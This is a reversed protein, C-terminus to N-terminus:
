PHFGYGRKRQGAMKVAGKGSKFKKLGYFVGAM